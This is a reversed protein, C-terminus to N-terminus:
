PDGLRRPADADGEITVAVDLEDLELLMWSRHRVPDAPWRPRRLDDRTWLLRRVAGDDALWAWGSVVHAFPGAQERVRFRLRRGHEDDGEDRAADAELLRAVGQLPGTGPVAQTWTIDQAEDEDQEEGFRARLGAGIVPLAFARGALEESVVVCGGGAPLTTTTRALGGELDVEGAIRLNVDTVGARAPESWGVERSRVGAGGLTRHAGRVLRALADEGM